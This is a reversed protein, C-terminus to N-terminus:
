ILFLSYRVIALKFFDIRQESNDALRIVADGVSAYTTVDIVEVIHGTGDARIYKQGVQVNYNTM